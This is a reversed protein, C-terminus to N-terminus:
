FEFMEVPDDPDDAHPPLIEAIGQEILHEGDLPYVLVITGPSLKRNMLVGEKILRMRVRDSLNPTPKPLFPGYQELIEDTGTKHLDVPEDIVMLPPESGHNDMVLDAHHHEDAPEAPQDAIPEHEVAAAQELSPPPEAAEMQPEPEVYDTARTSILEQWLHLLRVRADLASNGDASEAIDALKAKVKVIADLRERETMPAFAYEEDPVNVAEAKAM